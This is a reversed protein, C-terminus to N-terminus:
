LFLSYENLQHKTFIDNIYYPDPNSHQKQYCMLLKLQFIPGLPVSFTSNAENETLETKGFSQESLAMSSPVLEPYSLLIFLNTSAEKFTRTQVSKYTRMDTCVFSAELQMLYLMMSFLKGDL